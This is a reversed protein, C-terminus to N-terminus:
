QLNEEWKTALVELYSPKLSISRLVRRAEPTQWIQKRENKGKSYKIFTVTKAGLPFDSSEVFETLATTLDKADTKFEVDNVRIELHYAPKRKKPAKKTKKAGLKKKAVKKTKPM